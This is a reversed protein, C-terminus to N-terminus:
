WLSLARVPHVAVLDQKCGGVHVLGSKAFKEHLRHVSDYNALRKIQRIDCYVGCCCVIHHEDCRLMVANVSKVRLTIGARIRLRKLM